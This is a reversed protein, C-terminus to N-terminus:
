LGGYYIDKYSADLLAKDIKGASITRTPSLSSLTQISSTAVAAVAVPVETAFVPALYVALNYTLATIYVPLLDLDIDIDTIPYPILPKFSAM